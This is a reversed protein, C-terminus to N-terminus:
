GSRGSAIEDSLTGITCVFVIARGTSIKTRKKWSNKITIWNRQKSFSNNLEVWSLEPHSVPTHFRLTCWRFQSTLWISATTKQPKPGCQLWCYTFLNANFMLMPIPSSFIVTLDDIADTPDLFGNSKRKRTVFNNTIIWHGDTQLADRRRRQLIIPNKSSYPHLLRLRSTAIWM